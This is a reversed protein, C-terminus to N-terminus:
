VINVHHWTLKAFSMVIEIRGDVLEVTRLGEGALTIAHLV